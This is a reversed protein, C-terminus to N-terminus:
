GGLTRSSFILQLQKFHKPQSTTQKLDMVLPPHTMDSRLTATFIVKKHLIERSLHFLLYIHVKDILSLLKFHMNTCGKTNRILLANDYLSKKRWFKINIKCFQTMTEKNVHVQLQEYPCRQQTINLKTKNSWTLWQTM